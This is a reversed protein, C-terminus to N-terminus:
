KDSLPPCRSVRFNGRWRRVVGYGPYAMNVMAIVGYALAAINVPRSANAAMAAASAARRGDKPQPEGSSLTKRPPVSM